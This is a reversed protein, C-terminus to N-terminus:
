RYRAPDVGVDACLKQFAAQRESELDTNFRLFFPRHDWDFPVRSKGHIYYLLAAFHVARGGDGHLLGYFLTEIVAPPHYEAAMDIAESLGGYFQGLRLAEVLAETREAKTAIGPQRSLIAMRTAVPGRRFAQRLAERTRPTDLAILAEVDRWDDAHRSLVLTEIMAREDPTAQAIADLDYGIGERWKEYDIAMSAEFRGAATTPDPAPRPRPLNAAERIADMDPDPPPPPAPNLVFFFGEPDAWGSERGWNPWDRAVLGDQADAPRTTIPHRLRALGGVPPAPFGGGAEVIENGAALEAALLAKLPAPFRELEKRFAPPWDPSSMM